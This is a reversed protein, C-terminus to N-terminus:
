ELGTLIGFLQLSLAITIMVPVLWRLAFIWNGFLRMTTDREDWVFDARLAKLKVRYGVALSIGIAIVPLIWQILLSDTSQLLNMGSFQVRRLINSSFAPILCFAFVMFGIGWASKSRPMKRRDVLVSVSAEMLGISAGLGAVYACLFFMLGFFDSLGVKSLLMPVTEFLITPGTDPRIGGSFVIPFVLLGVFISVLTDLAVVRVAAEPVNMEQKMYSGFVIMSGFGLSLTFLVHGIAKIVSGFKLEAFNPYFLFRIADQSGSLKLSQV